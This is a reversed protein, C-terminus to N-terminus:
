VCLKGHGLVSNAAAHLATNGKRDTQLIDAGHRLLLRLVADDGLECALHLPRRQRKGMSFNVDLDRHKQLYSKLKLVDGNEVYRWVRKQGRSVMLVSLPLFLTVGLPWIENHKPKQLSVTLETRRRFLDPSVVSWISREPHLSNGGNGGPTLTQYM